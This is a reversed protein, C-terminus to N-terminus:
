ANEDIAVLLSRKAPAVFTGVNRSPPAISSYIFAIHTRSSQFWFKRSTNCSIFPPFFSLRNLKWLKRSLMSWRLNIGEEEEESKQPPILTHQFTPISTQASLTISVFFSKGEEQKWPGNTHISEKSGRAQRRREQRMSLLPKNVAKDDADVRSMEESADGNSSIWSQGTQTAPSHPPVPLPISACGGGGRSVRLFLWAVIILYLNLNIPHCIAKKPPSLVEKKHPWLFRKNWHLQKRGKRNQSKKTKM